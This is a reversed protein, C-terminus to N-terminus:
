EIKNLFWQGFIETLSDVRNIFASIGGNVRVWQLFNNQKLEHEDLMKNCNWDEKKVEFATFVGVTRGVMEPTIVIKTIGILDSSKFQQKPSTHGLGYRIMRGTKDVAAGSNNRHLVCGFHRSAIQVEQQVTSEDKM